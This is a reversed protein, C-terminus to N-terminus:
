QHVRGTGMCRSCPNLAANRTGASGSAASGMKWTGSGMCSPCVQSTGWQVNRPVTGSGGTLDRLAARADRKYHDHCSWSGTITKVFCAAAEAPSYGAEPHTGDKYMQGLGFYGGDFGQDAAAAFWQVGKTTNKAVPGYGRAHYYAIRVAADAYGREWSREFYQLARGLDVQQGWGNKYIQGVTYLAPGVGKDGAKNLWTLAEQRDQKVGDGDLYDHGVNLLGDPDGLQAARLNWEHAEERTGSFHAAMSIMAQSHGQDALARVIKEARPRDKEAGWGNYLVSGAFILSAEANGAEHGLQAWKAARPWSKAVGDGRSYMGALRAMALGNGADAAEHLWYLGRFVEGKITGDQIASKALELQEQAAAPCWGPRESVSGIAHILERKMEVFRNGTRPEAAHEDLCEHLIGLMTAAWTDGSEAREQLQEAASTTIGAGSPQASAQPVSLAWYGIMVALVLTFAVCFGMRKERVSSM